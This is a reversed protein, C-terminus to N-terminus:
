QLMRLGSKIDNFISDIYKLCEDTDLAMLSLPLPTLWEYLPKDEDKFDNNIFKTRDEYESTKKYDRLLNYLARKNAYPANKYEMELHDVYEDKGLIRYILFQALYGAAYGREAANKYYVLSEKLNETISELYKPIDEKLLPDTFVEHKIPVLTSEFILDGIILSALGSGQNYFAELTGEKTNEPKFNTDYDYEYLNAWDQLTVNYGEQTAKEELRMAEITDSRKVKWGNEGKIYIWERLTNILEPYADISRLMEIANDYDFNSIDEWDRQLISLADSKVTERYKNELKGKISMWRLDIDFAISTIYTDCDISPNGPVVLSSSEFEQLTHEYVWGYREHVLNIFKNFDIQFLSIPLGDCLIDHCELSETVDHTDLYKEFKAEAYDGDIWDSTASISLEFLDYNDKSMCQQMLNVLVKEITSRDKVDSLSTKWTDPMWVQLTKAIIENNNTM